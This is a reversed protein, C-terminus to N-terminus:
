AAQELGDGANPVVDKGRGKNVIQKLRAFDDSSLAIVDGAADIREAIRSLEIQEDRSLRTPDVSELLAASAPASGTAAVPDSAAPTAGDNPPCFVGAKAALNILVSTAQRDGQVAKLAQTDTIAELMTVKSTKNGRRVPIKKKLSQEVVTRLNTSGRPRGKPNARQGPKFQTEKPPCGYGVKYPEGQKNSGAM